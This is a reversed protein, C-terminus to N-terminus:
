TNVSSMNLSSCPKICASPQACTSLTAERQFSSRRFRLITDSNRLSLSMPAFRSADMGSRTVLVIVVVDPDAKRGQTVLRYSPSSVLVSRHHLAQDANMNWTWSSTRVRIPTSFCRAHEMSRGILELLYGAMVGSSSSILMGSCISQRAIKSAMRTWMIFLNAGSLQCPSLSEMHSARLVLFPSFVSLIRSVTYVSASTMQRWSTEASHSRM